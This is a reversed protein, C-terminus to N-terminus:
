PHFEPPQIVGSSSALLQIGPKGMGHSSEKAVVSAPSLHLLSPLAQGNIFGMEKEVLGLFILLPIHKPRKKKKKFFLRDARMWWEHNPINIARFLRTLNEVTPKLGLKQAATATKAVLPSCRRLQVMPIPLGDKAAREANLTSTLKDLEARLRLYTNADRKRRPKLIPDASISSAILNFDSAGDKHNPKTPKTKFIHWATMAFGDPAIIARHMEEIVRREKKTLYSGPAFGTIWWTGHHGVKHGRSATLNYTTLRKALEAVFDSPTFGKPSTVGEIEFRIHNPHSADDNYHVTQRIDQEDELTLTTKVIPM